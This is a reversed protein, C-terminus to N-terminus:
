ADLKIVRFAADVHCQPFLAEKLDNFRSSANTVVLRLPGPKLLGDMNEYNQYGLIKDGILAARFSLQSVRYCTLIANRKAYRKFLSNLNAEMHELRNRISSEQIDQSWEQVWLDVALGRSIADIIIPEFKTATQTILCVRSCSPNHELSDQLHKMWEDPSGALLIGTNHKSKRYVDLAVTFERIAAKGKSDLYTYHLYPLEGVLLRPTGGVDQFACRGAYLTGCTVATDDYGPVDICVGLVPPIYDIGCSEIHLKFGCKSAAENWVQKTSDLGAELNVQIYTVDINDRIARLIHSHDNMHVLTLKVQKGLVLRATNPHELEAQLERFARTILGLSFKLSVGVASIEVVQKQSVVANKIHEVISRRASDGEIENTICPWASIVHRERPRSRYKEEINLLEAQIDEGLQVARSANKVLLSSKLALVEEIRTKFQEQSFPKCPEYLNRDAFVRCVNELDKHEVPPIGFLIAPIGLTVVAGAESQCYNSWEFDLSLLLIAGRATRLKTALLERYAERANASADPQRCYFASLGWLEFLEKLLQAVKEEHSQYVIFVDIAESNGKKNAKDKVAIKTM